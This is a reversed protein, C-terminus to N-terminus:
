LHSSVTNEIKRTSEKRKGHDCVLKCRKGGEAASRVRLTYLLKVVTEFIWVAGAHKFIGIFVCLILEIELTFVDLHIYSNAIISSSHM